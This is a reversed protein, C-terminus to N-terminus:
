QPGYGDGYLDTGSGDYSPPGGGGWYGMSSPNSGPTQRLWWAGTQNVANGFGNAGAIDAAGRANGAGILNGGVTNAVNQGQTDVFNTAAQGTGSVGALKNYIGTKTAQDRNFADDFKTTAYDNGYQTLAKLTAGSYLGGSAAASNERALQGQQLGFQYGPDTAVSAGTFPTLLSGYGTAKTNGSIGLLDAMRSLAAYGQTRYPAQDARTQEFEQEQLADASNVSSRQASAAQNAGYVMAGASLAGAGIVAAAVM